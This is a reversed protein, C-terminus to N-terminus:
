TEASITYTAPQDTVDIDPKLRLLSGNETRTSQIMMVSCVRRDM